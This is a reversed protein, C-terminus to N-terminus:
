QGIRGITCRTLYPLALSYTAAKKRVFCKSSENRWLAKKTAHPKSYPRRVMDEIRWHYVMDFLAIRSLLYGGKKKRLVKSIWKKLTSKKNYATKFVAAKGYRRHALPVGHWIPCHPLTPLRRKKNTHWKSMGLRYPKYKQYALTPSSLLRGQIRKCPPFRHWRCQGKKLNMQAFPIDNAFLDM